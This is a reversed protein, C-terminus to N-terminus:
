KCDASNGAIVRGEVGHVSLDLGREHFAVLSAVALVLRSDVAQQATLARAVGVVRICTRVQRSGGAPGTVGEEEEEESVM